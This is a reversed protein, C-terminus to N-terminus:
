GGDGGRGNGNGGGGGGGNATMSIGGSKIFSSNNGNNGYGINSGSPLTGSTTPAVTVTYSGSSLSTGQLYVVGGGGGGGTRNGTSSSNHGGGSGGAGVVLIDVTQAQISQSFPFVIFLLVLACFVNKTKATAPLNPQTKKCKELLTSPSM